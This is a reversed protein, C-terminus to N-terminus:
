EYGEYPDLVVGCCGAWTRSVARSASAFSRALLRHYFTVDHRPPEMRERAGRISISRERATAPWLFDARPVDSVRVGEAADALQPQARFRTTFFGGVPAARVGRGCGSGTPAVPKQAIPVLVRPKTHGDGSRRGGHFTTRAETAECDHARDGHLPRGLPVVSCSPACSTLPSAAGANRLINAYGSSVLCRLPEIRSGHRSCRLAVPRRSPARSPLGHYTENAALVDRVGSRPWRQM